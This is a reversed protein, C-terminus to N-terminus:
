KVKLFLPSSVYVVVLGFLIHPAIFIEDLGFPLPIPLVSFISVFTFIISPIHIHRLYTNKTAHNHLYPVKSVMLFSALLVLAAYVLPLGLFYSVIPLVVLTAGAPSPIGEFVDSHGGESFRNLRFLVTFLYLTALTISLVLSTPLLHRFIIIAPAIGFSIFDAVTDLQAGFNTQANLYRAIKGDLADLFICILVCALASQLHHSYALVIAYIGVLINLFTVSNPVISKLRKQLIDDNSLEPWLYGTIYDVFSVVTVVVMAFIMVKLIWSPWFYVWQQLPLLWQTVWTLESTNLPVSVRALLIGCVPLTIATKLKGWFEAAMVKGKKAAVVRLAMVLFERSLIIFVPISSIVGMELLPLFVLILIKDAVPDLIKGFASEIKLKRALYGDLFDTSAVIIFIIISWLQIHLHAFPAILLIYGVGVIRSLTIINALQKFLFNM